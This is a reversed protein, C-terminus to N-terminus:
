VSIARSRRPRVQARQALESPGAGIKIRHQGHVARNGGIVGRWFLSIGQRRPSPPRRGRLPKAILNGRQGFDLGDQRQEMKQHSARIFLLKEDILSAAAHQGLLPVRPSGRDLGSRLRYHMLLGCPDLLRSFAGAEQGRQGRQPGVQHLFCPRSGWGIPNGEAGQRVAGCIRRGLRREM